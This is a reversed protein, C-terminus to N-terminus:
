RGDRAPWPGIDFGVVPRGRAPWIIFAFTLNPGDAAPHGPHDVGAGGRRESLLGLGLQLAMDAVRGPHDSHASRDPNAVRSTGGKTSRSHSFPSHRRPLRVTAATRHRPYDERVANRDSRRYSLAGRRPEM